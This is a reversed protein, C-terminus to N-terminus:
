LPHAVRRAPSPDTKRGELSRDIELNYEHGHSCRWMSQQGTHGSGGAGPAPPLPGHRQYVLYSGLRGARACDICEMRPVNHDPRPPKLASRRTAPQAAAAFFEPGASQGESRAPPWPQEWWNCLLVGVRVWRYRKLLAPLVPTPDRLLLTGTHHRHNRFVVIYPVTKM